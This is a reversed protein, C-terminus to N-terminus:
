AYRANRIVATTDAPMCTARNAMEGRSADVFLRPLAVHRCRYSKQLFVITFFMQRATELGAAPPRFPKRVVAAVPLRAVIRRRVSVTRVAERDGNDVTAVKEGGCRGGTCKAGTAVGPV